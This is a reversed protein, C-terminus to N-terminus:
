VSASQADRRGTMAQAQADIAAIADDVRLASGKLSEDVTQSEALGELEARVKRM